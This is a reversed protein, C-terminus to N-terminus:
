SAGDREADILAQKRKPGWRYGTIAGNAGVVRHCPIVIAVPNSACARAVARAATPRGIARAVEGYTSTEGYPIRQLERWVRWQFASARVDIPLDLHPARGDLHAVIAAVAKRLRADDRLVTAAPYERRLDAELERARDGIKVACVGRDTAGVLLRGLPSATMTYRITIGAGGQRYRGPTMGIVRDAREYLRSSSGYGADYLARTVDHGRRLGHKLRQVRCAEGYDRPSVGTLTKFTRQLHSPSLGVHEAIASLTPRGDPDAAIFECARRVAVLRAPEISEKPRCRRCARFGAQEAADPDTFFRVRDRRPRRSACTPRCYIGTSSVGYVFAGDFRPDRAVVAEWRTSADTMMAM